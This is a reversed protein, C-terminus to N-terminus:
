AVKRHTYWNYVAQAVGTLLSAVATIIIAQTQADVTFGTKKAVWVAGVSVACSAVAMIATELGKKASIKKDVPM